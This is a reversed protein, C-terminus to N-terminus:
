QHTRPSLQPPRGPALGSRTTTQPPPGCGGGESDSAARRERASRPRPGGLLRGVVRLVRGWPTLPQTGTCGVSPEPTDPTVGSCAGMRGGPTRTVSGVPAALRRPGVQRAPTLTGDVDFLCLVREKRRAGEAAVAMAAAGRARAPTSRHRRWPRTQFLSSPAPGPAPGDPRPTRWVLPAHGPRPGPALPTARALPSRPGTGGAGRSSSPSTAPHVEFGCHPAPAGRGGGSM